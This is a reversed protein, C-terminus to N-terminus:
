IVNEVDLVLTTNQFIKIKIQTPSHPPYPDRPVGLLLIHLVGLDILLSKFFKTELM